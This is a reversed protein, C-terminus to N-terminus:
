KNFHYICNTINWKVHIVEKWNTLIPPPNKFLTNKPQPCKMISHIIPKKMNTIILKEFTDKKGTRSSLFFIQIRATSQNTSRYRHLHLGMNGWALVNSGDRTWM